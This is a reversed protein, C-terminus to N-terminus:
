NSAPDEGDTEDQGALEDQMTPELVKIKTGTRLGGIGVVVVSDGEEVGDIIEAFREDQYGIHVPIKRVTDAEAVYVYFEGADSIIGRRLITLSGRRTDTVVKIRAFSGPMAEGSTEATVKVTGTRKDVEPAIRVVRGHLTKGPDNDPHISVEQGVHIDGIESEPLYLRLLLPDTDAIEFLQEGANINQGLEVYRKTIVGEFPARVKTYEYRVLAAEHQNKALDAQYKADTFERDSILKEEYMSRIRDFESAQKELNIRAEDLAIRPEDDEIQCLVAGQSVWAGEEVHLKVIEGTIKSPVNVEREPDLTATTYYYSSIERPLVTSVEVPVPDPEKDKDDDKKDKKKAATTDAGASTSDATSDATVTGDADGAAEGRIMGKAFYGGVVVVIVVIVLAFWFRKRGFRAM